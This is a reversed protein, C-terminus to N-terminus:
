GRSRRASGYLMQVVTRLRAAKVPKHLLSLGADSAAALVRADTDGSVLFAPVHQGLRQRAQRVLSIGDGRHPLRLDSAIVDPRCGQEIARLAAEADAAETVVCGWSRLLDVLARRALADDEVVLISCKALDFEAIPGETETPEDLGQAQDALPVEVSFCSGRGPVSRLSLRNGMLKTARGVISLGLGLGKERSREANDLQVFEKFIEGHLGEAIGRGTDWVQLCAHDGRRRCAVLVGGKDTYRIANSVLNLLVRQMLQPDTAIRLDSHRLRLQLRKTAAMGAFSSHLKDWLDAVPVARRAARVLGSEM